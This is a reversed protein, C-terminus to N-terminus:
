VCVYAGALTSLVGSSFLIEIATALLSSLGIMFFDALASGFISTVASSILSM